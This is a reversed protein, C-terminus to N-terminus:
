GDQQMNKNLKDVEEMMERFASWYCCWWGCNLSAVVLLFCDVGVLWMTGDFIAGFLAAIAWLMLVISATARITFPNKIKM